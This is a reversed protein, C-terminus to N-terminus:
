KCVGTTGVSGDEAIYAEEERGIFNSEDDASGARSYGQM